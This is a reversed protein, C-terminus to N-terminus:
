LASGLKRAIHRSMRWTFQLGAQRVTNRLVNCADAKDSKAISDLPVGWHLKVRRMHRCDKASPKLLELPCSLLQEDCINKAVSKFRWCDSHKATKGRVPSHSLLKWKQSLSLRSSRLIDSISRHFVSTPVNPPWPVYTRRCTREGFQRLIADLRKRCRNTAATSPLKRSALGIIIAMEGAHCVRSQFRDCLSDWCVHQADAVYRILLTQFKENGIDVPGFGIGELLLSRCALTYADKYPLKLLSKSLCIPFPSPAQRRKAVQSLHDQQAQIYAANHAAHARHRPRCRRKVRTASQRAGVASTNAKPQWCSINATELTRIYDEAGTTVIWFMTDAAHVTRFLRVKQNVVPEKRLLARRHEQLHQYCRTMPSAAHSRAKALDYKTSGLYDYFGNSMMYLVAHKPTPSLLGFVQWSIFASMDEFMKPQWCGCLTILAEHVTPPLCKCRSLARQRRRKGRLAQWRTKLLLKLAGLVFFCVDTQLSTSQKARAGPPLIWDALGRTLVHLGAIHAHQGAGAELM